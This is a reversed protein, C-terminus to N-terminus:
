GSVRVRDYRRRDRLRELRLERDKKSELPRREEALIMLDLPEVNAHVRAWQSMGRMTPVQRAERKALRRREAEEWRRFKAAERWQAWAEARESEGHARLWEVYRGVKPDLTLM